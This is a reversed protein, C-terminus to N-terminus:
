YCFKWIIIVSNQKSICDAVLRNVFDKKICFIVCDVCNNMDYVQCLCYNFEIFYYHINGFYMVLNNSLNRYFVM